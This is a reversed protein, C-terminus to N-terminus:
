LENRLKKVIEIYKKVKEPSLDEKEMEKAFSIWEVGIDKLEQPVDQQEGFLEGIEVGYLETMDKLMRMSPLYGQEIRSLYSHDFELKSSVERMSYGKNMRLEKLRQGIQEDKYTERKNRM